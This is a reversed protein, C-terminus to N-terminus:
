GVAAHAAHALQPLLRPLQQCHHAELQGHGSAAAAKHFRRHEADPGLRQLDDFFVEGGPAAGARCGQVVQEALDGRRERDHLEVGCAFAM